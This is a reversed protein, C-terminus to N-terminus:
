RENKAAINLNKIGIESLIDLVKVVNKFQVIRDVYLIAAINPNSARIATMKERLSKNTVLEEDLYIPGENSITISVQSKDDLTQASSAEPLKVKLGANSLLPTAIMFIVLLVLIVDTFPTINIEAVLRERYSKRRM